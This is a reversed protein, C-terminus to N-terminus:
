ASARRGVALEVANARIIAAAQVPDVSNGCMRVQASISFKRGDHGHDIIYDDPFDQGRFLERPKLMRLRIDIIVYPQGKIFVTVLALREKTTAPENRKGDQPYNELLFDSVRLASAEQEPSLICSDAVSRARNSEDTRCGALFTSVVGHHQGGASVTMLPDEPNRADCNGRLHALHATVLQQQSGTNTVTTMPDDLKRGVTTNYGDNAQMMYATAIAHKGTGVVTGIPAEIDLSRPSQGDREGYGTQVLVPSVLMTEGRHAATITRMPEEISHSRDDGQHTAPVLIPSALSFEGGKTAAMVTRMPDELSHVPESQGNYHAIPVIVPSVIGLAHAAGADRACNGGSTITPLPEDVAHGSSDSRFKAIVPTALFKHNGTCGTAMPIDIPRPVNNTMNNVIFPQPNDLVYRKIGKAIRRMTAPALPKKRDFISKGLDSFDICEAAPKWKRQDPGAKKAHTKLGEWSIPQGDCRAIMWLRERTTHGGQDAACLVRHQVEYGLAELKRVFKRWTRGERKPDPVLYQDQVPVRENPAAPVWEIKTSTGRPTRLVVETRKLVRGTVKDRKAVLPGWKLIQKVNELSIVDPRVQAAWRYGVWSLARIKKDRPQGGSAQSHHTCNHVIVGEAVYSEDEEVSLNYVTGTARLDKVERVPAWEVQDIVRSQKRQGAIRWRVSYAPKVSVKRGQIVDPQNERLYINPSYGLSGALAKISYALARSVTTTMVIPSGDAKPMAGDGSVYGELFARRLSEDAGYLWAPLLKNAAGHGFHNRLWEVLGRSNTSFQRATDTTREHWAMEDSGARAGSRTWENLRARLTDAEHNGCTIVLEARTEAIRTWGDAVYRGALWMLSGSIEFQRGRYPPIPPIPLSPFSVPSGWYADRTLEGAKVWVPPANLHVLDGRGNRKSPRVYFPHEPSVILGPHGKGRVEVLPRVTSMTDTVRRWRGQHTLVLEGVEITEIAKYGKATLVMTGAPFCDPSMHLWGVSRGQTAGHPNVEFVDAIFHRTQPHNARHLSLADDNHNIAIDPSRGLAMECGTSWGGGGAFLDVIQKKHLDIQLQKKM